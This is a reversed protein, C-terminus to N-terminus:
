RLSVGARDKVPIWNPHSPDGAGPNVVGRGTTFRDTREEHSPTTLTETPRPKELQRVAEATTLTSDLLLTLLEV